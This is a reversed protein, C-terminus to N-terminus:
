EGQMAGLEAKEKHVTDKYVSLAENTIRAEEQIAEKQMESEKLQNALTKIQKELLLRSPSAKLVAEDVRKAGGDKM